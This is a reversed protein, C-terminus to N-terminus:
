ESGSLSGVGLKVCKQIDFFNKVGSECFNAKNFNEPSFILVTKCKISISVSRSRCARSALGNRSGVPNPGVIGTLM